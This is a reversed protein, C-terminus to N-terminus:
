KLTGSKLVLHKGRSELSSSMDKKTRREGLSSAQSKKKSFFGGVKKKLSSVKQFDIRSTATVNELNKKSLRKSLYFVLYAKYQQQTSKM